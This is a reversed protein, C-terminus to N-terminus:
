HIEDLCFYDPIDKKDSINTIDFMQKVTLPVSVPNEDAYVTVKASLILIFVLSILYYKKKIRKLVM